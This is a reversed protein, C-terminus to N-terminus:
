TGIQVVPEKASKPSAKNVCYMGTTMLYSGNMTISRGNGVRVESVATRMGGDEAIIGAMRM